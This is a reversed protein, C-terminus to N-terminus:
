LEKSIYKSVFSVTQNEMFFKMPQFQILYYGIAFAKDSIESLYNKDSWILYQFNKTQNFNMCFKKDLPM